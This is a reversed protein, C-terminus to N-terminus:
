GIKIENEKRKEDQIKGRHFQTSKENEQWPRYREVEFTEPGYNWKILSSGAELHELDGTIFQCNLTQSPNGSLFIAIM